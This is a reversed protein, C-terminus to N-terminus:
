GTKSEAKRLQEIAECSAHLGYGLANVFLNLRAIEDNKKGLEKTLCRVLEEARQRREKEYQYDEFWAAKIEEVEKETYITEKKAEKCYEAPIIFGRKPGESIIYCGFVPTDEVKYLEGIRTRHQADAYFKIVEVYM